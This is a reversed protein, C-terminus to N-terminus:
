GVQNNQETDAKSYAPCAKTNCSSVALAVIFAIVLIVTIKKM